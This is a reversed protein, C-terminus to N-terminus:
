SLIEGKFPSDDHFDKTGTQEVIIEHLVAVVQEESWCSGDNRFLMAQKERVSVRELMHLAKKNPARNGVRPLLWNLIHRPTQMGQAEEDTIVVDFTKEVAIVVEVSDLSDMSAAIENLVKRAQSVWSAFNM